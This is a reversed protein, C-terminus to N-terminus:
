SFPVAHTYLSFFCAPRFLCFLFFTALAPRVVIGFGALPDTVRDTVCSLGCFVQSHLRSYLLIFQQCCCADMRGGWGGMRGGSEEMHTCPYISSTYGAGLCFVLIFPFLAVSQMAVRSFINSCGCLFHVVVGCWPTRRDMLGPVMWGDGVGLVVVGVGRRELHISYFESRM